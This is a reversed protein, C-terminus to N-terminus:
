SVIYRSSFGTAAGSGLVDLVDEELGWQKKMQSRKAQRSKVVTVLVLM